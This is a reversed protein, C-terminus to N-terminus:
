RTAAIREAERRKRRSALQEIQDAPIEVIRGDEEVVISQGLLRHREIAEDIADQIARLGGEVDAFLEDITRGDRRGRAASESAM